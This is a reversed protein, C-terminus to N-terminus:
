NDAPPFDYEGPDPQINFVEKTYYIRLISIAPRAYVPAYYANLYATAQTWLPASTRDLFTYKTFDTLSISETKVVIGNVNKYQVWFEYAGAGRFENPIRNLNDITFSGFAGDSGTYVFLYPVAAQKAVNLTTSKSQWYPGEALTATLSHNWYDLAGGGNTSTSLKATFTATTGVITATTTFTSYADSVTIIQGNLGQPYVISYTDTSAFLPNQITRSFPSTLYVPSKTKAIFSATSSSTTNYSDGLYQANINRYGSDIQSKEIPRWTFTNTSTTMTLTSMFTAGDYLEVTGRPPHTPFHGNNLVITATVFTNTTGNINYYYFEDPNVAIDVDTSNLGLISMSSTTSEKSLYLRGDYLTGGSWIAKIIYTGTNAITATSLTAKNTSSNFNATGLSVDNAYFTVTNAMLTSTTITATVIFNDNIRQPTELLLSIPRSIEFGDIITMSATNSYKPAYLRGNTLYGGSWLAQLTYSGTNAITATTIVAKNTSSNWQATGLSIGNAYFTLTGLMPTSTTITATIAFDRNKTDPSNVQLLIPSVIDYGQLVQINTSTSQGAYFTAGIQAGDWLAEVNYTGSSVFVTTTVALNSGNFNAYGVTNGNVRFRVFDNIITSTSIFSRLTITEGTIYPVGTGQFSDSLIQLELPAGIYVGSTVTMAVNNSYVAYYKPTTISGAYYASATFSGTSLSNTEFTATNNVIPVSAIVESGRLFTITGTNISTSTNLTAVFSVPKSFDSLTPTVSLTM